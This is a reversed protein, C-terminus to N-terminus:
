LSRERVVFHWRGSSARVCGGWQLNKAVGSLFYALCIQAVDLLNIMFMRFKSILGISFGHKYIKDDGWWFKRSGSSAWLIKKWLLQLVYWWVSVARKFANNQLLIYDSTMILKENRAVVGSISDTLIERGSGVPLNWFRRRNVPRGVPKQGARDVPRKVSLKQESNLADWSVNEFPPMPSANFNTLGFSPRM